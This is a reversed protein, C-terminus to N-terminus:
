FLLAAQLTGYLAKALRVYVVGKGSEKSFFITYLEPDVKTLLQALPGEFWTHLVEDIDARMFARPIDCTVVKQREKADIVCSLFLSEVSVTPARTEEKTKNIRQKRGNACGQGKIRGCRKQKLFMLYQLSRQKEQRTLM